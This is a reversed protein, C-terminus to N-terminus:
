FFAMVHESIASTLLFSVANGVQQQHHNLGDCGDRTPTPVFGFWDPLSQLRSAERLSLGRDQNPHILMSKRFNGITVSPEDWQLRRYINSHAGSVDHYNRIRKAISQLNGGEPIRAYRKLIYAANRSVVHDWITGAPAFERSANVYPNLQASVAYHQERRPEGNKVPPLDAIADRVSVYGRATGPGHTARPFAVSPDLDLSLERSVALLFFRQRKQPVGFDAANLITHYCRFNRRLKRLLRALTSGDDREWRHAMGPVNELIAIKPKLANAYDAFTLVLDNLPHDADRRSNATSFGQCPPGGLLVDVGGATRAVDRIKSAQSGDTLDTAEVDSPVQDASGITDGFYRLNRRLSRLYQPHFEASYLLRGRKRAQRGMLFALGM